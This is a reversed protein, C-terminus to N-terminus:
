PWSANLTHLLAFLAVLALATQTLVSSVQARDEWWHAWRVRGEEAVKAAQLKAAVSAVAAREEPSLRLQDLLESNKQVKQQLEGLGRRM